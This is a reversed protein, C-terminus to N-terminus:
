KGVTLTGGYLNPTSFSSFPSNTLANAQLGAYFRPTGPNTQAACALPLALLATLAPFSLRM